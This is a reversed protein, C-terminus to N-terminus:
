PEREEYRYCDVTDVGKCSDVQEEEVFPRRIDLQSLHHRECDLFPDESYADDERNDVEEVLVNPGVPDHPPATHGLAIKVTQSRAQLTHTKAFALAVLAEENEGLQGLALLSGLVHSEERVEAKLTLKRSLSRTM